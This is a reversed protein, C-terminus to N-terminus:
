GTATGPPGETGSSAGSASSAGSDSSVDSGSSSGEATPAMPGAAEGYEAELADVDRKMEDIVARMDAVDGPGLDGGSGIVAANRRKGQEAGLIAALGHWFGARRPEVSSARQVALLMLVRLYDDDLESVNLEDTADAMAALNLAADRVM